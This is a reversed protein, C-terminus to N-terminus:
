EPSNAIGLLRRGVLNLTLLSLIEDVLADVLQKILHPAIGSLPLAGCRGPLVVGVRGTSRRTRLGRGVMQKILYPTAAPRASVNSQDGTGNRINKRTGKWAM